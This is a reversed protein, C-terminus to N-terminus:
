LYSFWLQEIQDFNARVQERGSILGGHGPLLFDTDLDSLAMISEKLLQGDGGPLDTRGIGNDFVVDGSFLAKQDPWYLCLSGPSHGPTHIVQLEMDGVKLQGEKLLFTPEFNSIGLAEGYHPAVKKMYAVEEAHLAIMTGTELFARVAELHDPHCHTVIVLDIEGPSIRLHSLEDRVHGFLHYHGPDILVKKEGSVFYTNCNNATPNLWLFAHLNENLKM